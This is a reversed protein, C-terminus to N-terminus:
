NEKNLKDFGEDIWDSIQSGYREAMRTEELALQIARMRAQHVSEQDVICYVRADYGGKKNSRMLTIFPVLEGKIEKLVLREYAAVIADVQEGTITSADSTIRGRVTGGANSAYEVAANNLATLKALNETVCGDALSAVQTCGSNVKVFFQELRTNVDGLEVMKFKGKRITKAASAAELKASRLERKTQAGLPSVAVLLAAAIIILKKM